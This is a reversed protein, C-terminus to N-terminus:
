APASAPSPHRRQCQPVSAIVDERISPSCRLWQTWPFRRGNLTWRNFGHEAANQKVITMEITEDPASSTGDNKGFQRYDWRFPKPKAWQPKGTKGAYEIVIGMGHGRDDDALDGMVWIGPHKM